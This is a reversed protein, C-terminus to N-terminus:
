TFNQIIKKRIFKPSFSLLFYIIQARTYFPKIRFSKILNKRAELISGKDLLDMGLMLYGYSYRNKYLNQYINGFRNNISDFTTKIDELVQEGKLNRMMGGDHIRYEGFTEQLYGIKSNGTIHITLFLDAIFNIAPNTPVNKLAVKRFMKSSNGFLSGHFILDEISYSVKIKKPSVIRITENTNSNFARLAHTVMIYDKHKDLYDVQSQLKEPLMLDDGDMMAIYEGKCHLITDFFNKTSGINKTRPILKIIEPYRKEYDRIIERTNDTSLDEGVVIEYCFNVRQSLISELSQAIFQEHNYTILSISVKLNM